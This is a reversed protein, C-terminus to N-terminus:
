VDKQIPFQEAYADLIGNVMAAFSIGNSRAYHRLVVLTKWSVRVAIQEKRRASGIAAVIEEVPPLKIEGQMKADM